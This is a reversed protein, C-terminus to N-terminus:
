TLTSLLSQDLNLRVRYRLGIKDLGDQPNYPSGSAMKAKTSRINVLGIEHNVIPECARSVALHVRTSGRVTLEIFSTAAVSPM